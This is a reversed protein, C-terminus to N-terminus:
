SAANAGEGATQTRGRASAIDRRFRVPAAILPTIWQEDGTGHVEVRGFGLVRGWFGQYLRVAEVSGLLLESVRREIFGTKKILRRDTLAVETNTLYIVDRVFIVIGVIFIGLVILALWARLWLVWHLRGVACLTEGEALAQKVYSM